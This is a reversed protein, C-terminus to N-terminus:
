CDTLANWGFKVPFLQLLTSYLVRSNVRGVPIFFIDCIKNSSYAPISSWGHNKWETEPDLSRGLLCCWLSRVIRIFKLM